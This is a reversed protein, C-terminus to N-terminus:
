CRRITEAKIYDGIAQNCLEQIRIRSNREPSPSFERMKFRTGDGHHNRAGDVYKRLRERRYLSKFEDGTTQVRTDTVLLVPIDYRLTRTSERPMSDLTLLLQKEVVKVTTLDSIDLGDSSYGGMRVTSHEQM